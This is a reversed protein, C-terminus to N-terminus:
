VRLESPAGEYIPKTVFGREKCAECKKKGAQCYPCVAHPKEFKLQKQAATLHGAFSQAHLYSGHTTEAIQEAWKKIAGIARYQDDFEDAAEFVELLKAPVPQGVTDEVTAAPEPEDAEPEAKQETAKTAPALIEKVARSNIQVGKDALKKAKKLADPPASPATLAYIAELTFSQGLSPCDKGLAKYANLYNFASSKSIWCEAEIWKGFIGDGHNALLEQASALSEGMELMAALGADKQKKVYGALAILQSKSDSDIGDYEFRGDAKLQQPKM